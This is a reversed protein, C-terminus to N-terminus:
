SNEQPATPYPDLTRVAIGQTVATACTWDRAWSSGCAMPMALVFIVCVCVCVCVIIHLLIESTFMSHLLLSSLLFVAHLHTPILTSNSPLLNSYQIIKAVTYTYNFNLNIIGNFIWIILLPPFHFFFFCFFGCSMVWEVSVLFAFSFKKGAKKPQRLAYPTWPGPILDSGFNRGVGCSCCCRIRLGSHWALISGADWVGLVSDIGSHWLM